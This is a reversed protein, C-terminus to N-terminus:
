ARARVGRGRGALDGRRRKIEALQVFAAAAIAPEAHMLQECAQIAEAEAESWAGRLRSVEARNARCIGPFMSDPPITACWDRAADSWESARRLDSLALCAGILSCFIIGTFYAGVEGAVISAMAEDLLAVGERVRGLDIMTLGKTHIAMAGLEPDGVTRATRIADEIRVIAGEPDGTNAAITAELVALFATERGDPLEAAHRQARMLFGSGVAADGRIFHEIALRGANWGAHADDGAADYAAYAEIRIQTAEILHSGWWAADAFGELDAGTLVDRDAAHFAAYAEAWDQRALAARARELELDTVVTM